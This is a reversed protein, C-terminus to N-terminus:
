FETAKVEFSEERAASVAGTSETRVTWTGAEDVKYDKYYIGTAHKTIQSSAYTYSEDNDSPDEVKLAVTTPDTLTGAVTFEMWIRVTQNVDIRM